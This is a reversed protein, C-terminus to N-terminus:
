YDPYPSRPEDHYAVVPDREPDLPWYNNRFMGQPDYKNKLDRLRAWHEGFCASIRAESEHRGLFCTYPGGTSVPAITQAIWEEASSKCRPDDIHLEWQHLAAITFAAQRQSKPICTDAHDEIAGGALEFLWTCGIPTDAFKMVTQNIIEDPLSTILTSRIFWKRGMQGRLVQAISDQQKLFSKESVENLLCPEGEWSSILQLFEQGREKPGVYCMQIVVLSDQDKPGATLLVNCYLERPAGKVCDRFHKILSPATARHFRYILNGAFVVPVPYARAKYRTAIGFAPGGGRIAWWLDPHEDESVIVVRGDALVMEVEVVNDVSLGHLRTLFGFGGTLMIASGVPHAATPVHYPVTAAAGDLTTGPLPNEACFRDVDKVKRGAGFTVYAHPHVPQAYGIAGLLYYSSWASSAGAGASSGSASGSGSASTAATSESASSASGNGSSSSNPGSSSTSALMPPAPLRATDIPPPRQAVSPPAGSVVPADSMYGFPDADPNVAASSSPSPLARARGPPRNSGDSSTRMPSGLMSPRSTPRPPGSDMYGFPDDMSMVSGPGTPSETLRRRSSPRPDDAGAMGWPGRTTPEVDRVSAPDIRADQAYRARPPLPPGALFIETASSAPLIGRSSAPLRMLEEPPPPVPTVSGVSRSVGPTSPSRQRKAPVSAIDSSLTPRGGKAKGKSGGAAIEHLSTWDRLRRGKAETDGDMKVEPEPLPPEIDLDDLRSLDLVVDGAVAWGATGYGGAKVSPSLGYKACFSVVKSVDQADVPCVVVQSRCVINGNWLRSHYAFKPDGRNYVDGRILNSLEQVLGDALSPPPPLPSHIADMASFVSPASRGGM